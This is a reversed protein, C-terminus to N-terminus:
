HKLMNLAEQSQIDKNPMSGIRTLLIARENDIERQTRFGLRRLIPVPPCWGQISHQFLFGAILGSALFWKRNAIGLVFTTLLLTSANAEIAREIDWEADLEKLRAKIKKPDHGVKELQNITKHEISCNVADSTNQTVRNATQAILNSNM